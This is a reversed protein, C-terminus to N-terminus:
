HKTFYTGYGFQISKIGDSTARSVCWELILAVAIGLPMVLYESVKDCSYVKEPRHVTSYVALIRAADYYLNPSLSPRMAAARITPWYHLAFNGFYYLWPGVEHLAERIMSCGMLSMIVVTLQVLVALTAFVQWTRVYLASCPDWM